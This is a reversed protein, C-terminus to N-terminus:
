KAILVLVGRGCLGYVTNNLSDEHGPARVQNPGEAWPCTDVVRFWAKGAPPTPLSFNVLDSWGNWAVYMQAAPDQFATGDLTWAMSHQDASAWWGATPATGEATYWHLESSSYFDAPRLAPHASRFEMMGKTFAQFNLQDADLTYDLWNKDSDLNYANNNGYQTRLFEDGGTIMPTGASLLMLALAARAARRQNAPVGNHTWSLNYDEGGESPGYPWPQMNQKSDYSFLDKLTFGDHTVVINVSNWPKRGDDGYLDASGSLRSALASPTVAELGLKNVDKRLTDRYIGNWESWGSPFGGVQYSNGGIAWPEAILDVGAGGSGPRPGLDRAIRNLANGSDVKNFNYCGHECSNGLVSALDFRYGDVGIVDRWHKLSDVILDQALPNHTNYNGGIGTNDWSQQRDATLSYYSPNDLGRFSYLTFTDTTTGRWAGGEATHNYVVDIFVKIGQAHFAAVMEQAERTPGGASKDFSYRRDPAFYNLTMYGWYNDDATTNPDVDNQDNQTEQLPLFEIATIGLSALQVAKLAAGRYTGRYPLPVSPDNMTLGRLHVEYVIDDKLSRTPKPTAPPAAPTFIVGKPAVGGSDLTRYRPGTGYWTPSPTSHNQPDHSVELAYPDILLKNPNFRQGQADVDSIFGASSGPSWERVYPWNPGWARFGYYITGTLGVATLTSRPISTSWVDGSGKELVARVKVPGNLAVAYLWAELHTASTSRVSISVGDEAVTAGLAAPSTAVVVVESSDRQGDAAVGCGALGFALGLVLHVFVSRQKWKKFENM